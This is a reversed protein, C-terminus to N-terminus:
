SAASRALRPPVATEILRQLAAPPAFAPGYALGVQRTLDLEALPRVAIDPDGDVLSEPLVAVGVGARVLAAAWAESEAVAVIQPRVTTRGIAQGYECHCRSIFRVGALDAATVTEQLVLEHRAPLAVVFREEWFPIFTEDERASVKAIIRADAEDDPGVLKLLLDPAQALPALLAGVRVADLTRALGLTLTRRPEAKSFLGRMAQAGDLLRRARPYLAEGAATPSVGKKHRVFLQAGLEGELAAIAASISPQSVFCRRAAETINRAEYAASFYRLERLEM